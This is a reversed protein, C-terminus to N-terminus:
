KKLNQFNKKRIVATNYANLSWQVNALQGKIDLDSLQKTTGWALNYFVCNEIIEIKNLKLKDPLNLINCMNLNIYHCNVNDFFDIKKSDLDEFKKRGLVITQINKKLLARVLFTGIFGTGGTVIAQKIM